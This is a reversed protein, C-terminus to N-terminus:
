LIFDFLISASWEPNAAKIYEAVTVADLTTNYATPLTDTGFLEVIRPNNSTAYWIGGAHSLTITENQV